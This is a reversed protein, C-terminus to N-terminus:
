WCSGNCCRLSICNWAFWCWYHYCWLNWCYHIVPHLVGCGYRECYHECSCPLNRNTRNSSEQCSNSYCHWRLQVYQDLQRIDCLWYCRLQLECPWRRQYYLQRCPRIVRRLSFSYWAFSSGNHKCCIHRGYDFEHHMLRR